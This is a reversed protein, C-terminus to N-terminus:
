IDTSTEDMGTFVKWVRKSAAQGVNRDSYAGDRNASKRIGELVFPGERELGRVLESVTEFERVIGLSIPETIRSISQLIRAYTDRADDGTRVQGSDMCFGASANAADKQRRYPITSIHQTFVAVWQATQVAADTHHILAGHHVQLSLLADELIDEDIYPTADKKRRRAQTSPPPAAADAADPAAGANRIAAQFQRNRKTRNNRMWPNLGELLYILTHDEHYRQMKLVHAELDSGDPGLVLDIFEAAKIIVMAHNEKEIREPIPEWHGQDENFVARVKRKWKVVNDVPSAYSYSQVSLDKLLEEVQLKLSPALSSPIEVIMEPTSIKKDNRVKNVEALATAREKEQQRQAKAEDKERQKRRKEVERAADKELRELEKEAATKVSAPPRSLGFSRKTVKSSMKRSGSRSKSSRIGSIDPLDEDDNDSGFDYAALDGLDFDLGDSRSRSLGKKAPQVEMDWNDDRFGAEPASSSLHDWELAKGKGKVAKSRPPSLSNRRPQCSVFLPSSPIQHRRAPPSAAAKGKATVPRPPTSFPDSSVKDREKGKTLRPSGRFTDDALSLDIFNEKDRSASQKPSSVFPDSSLAIPDASSNWKKLAAPQLEGAGRWGVPATTTTSRQPGSASREIARGSTKTNHINATPLGESLATASPRASTRPRKAPRPDLKDKYLDFTACDFLDDSSPSFNSALSTRGPDARNPALRQTPVAHHLPPPHHHHHLRNDGATLDLTDYDLARTPVNPRSLAPAPLKTKPRTPAAAAPVQLAIDPSSLLDIIEVPM